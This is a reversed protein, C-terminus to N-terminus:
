PCRESVGGSLGESGLSTPGVPTAGGEVIAAWYVTQPAAPVSTGTIRVKWTGSSVPGAVTAREFVSPVSLSSARVVGSPDVIRLDINNHSQSVGEPWWLAARLNPYTGSGGTAIVTVDITQGNSVSVRGRWIGGTPLMSAKGVGQTNDFNPYAVPGSVILFSYVDGPAPTFFVFLSELLNRWLLAMGGAYPTAGSTGGFVRLATDSANSATETDTPLQLDPKIRGDSTPGRSQYSPTVLSQVNYAGVGIVKHANAPSRVTGSAPGFNGNAAIVIKGADFAADAAASISSSESGSGQMEAVIVHDGAAIAAEFGRIAADTVLGACNYVKFSDLKAATVGRYANGQSANAMMIAGSSILDSSCM